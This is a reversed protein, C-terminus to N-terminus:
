REHHRAKSDRWGKALGYMEFLTGVTTFFRPVPEGKKEENVEGTAVRKQFFGTLRNGAYVAFPVSDAFHKHV